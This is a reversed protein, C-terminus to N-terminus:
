SINQHPIMYKILDNKLNLLGTIIEPHCDRFKERSGCICKKYDKINKRKKLMQKLLFWKESNKIINFLEVTEVKSHDKIEGYREILGLIGHAHQGWPWKDYKQFYSQEYFFPVLLKNFFDKVNIGKPFLDKERGKM